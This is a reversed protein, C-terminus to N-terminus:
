AQMVGQSAVPMATDIAAADHAASGDRTLSFIASDGKDQRHVLGHLCLILLAKSISTERIGSAEALRTSTASGERKLAALIDFSSKRQVVEAIPQAEYFRHSRAVLDTLARTKAELDPHGASELLNEAFRCTNFWDVLDDNFSRTAILRWTNEALATYVYPGMEPSHNMADRILTAQGTGFDGRGVAELKRTLEKWTPDM